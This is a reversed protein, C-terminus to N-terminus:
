RYEMSTKDKPNPFPDKWVGDPAPAIYVSDWERKGAMYERWRVNRKAHMAMARLLQKNKEQCEYFDDYFKACITQGRKCGYYEMCGMASMEIEMCVNFARDHIPSFLDGTFGDFLTSPMSNWQWMDVKIQDKINNAPDLNAASFPNKASTRYDWWPGNDDRLHQKQYDKDKFELLPNKDFIKQFITQKVKSENEGGM